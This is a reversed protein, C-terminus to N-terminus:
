ISGVNKPVRLEQKVATTLLMKIASQAIRAVRNDDPTIAMKEALLNRLEHFFKELDVKTLTIPDPNHAIYQLLSQILFQQVPDAKALEFHVSQRIAYSCAELQQATAHEAESSYKIIENMGLQGNGLKKGLDETIATRVIDIPLVKQKRITDEAVFDPNLNVM